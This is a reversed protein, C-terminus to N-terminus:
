RNLEMVASYLLHDVEIKKCIGNEFWYDNASGDPFKIRYHHDELRQISLFKQYKDSFILVTTLPEHSYICLLSYYIKINGLREEKGNNHIIYVDNVYRIQKNVKESSNLKQYVSSYVMVGNDYSAEEIGKASFTFIFSTKINSQLKLNVKNGRKVERLSMDGIRSGNRKITYVLSKEQAKVILVLFFTVIILFLIRAAYFLKMKLILFQQPNTKYYRRMLMLVIAPIM